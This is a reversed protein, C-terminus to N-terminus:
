TRPGATARHRLTAGDADPTPTISRDHPSVSDSGNRNAQHSTAASTTSSAHSSSPQAADGQRSDKETEHLGSTSMDSKARHSQIQVQSSRKGQLSYAAIGAFVMCAGMWHQSTFANQFYIISLLMSLLKRTTLALTTTLTSTHATLMSVGKFCISQTILNALLCVFLSFSVTTGILPLTLAVRMPPDFWLRIHHIIDSAFPLFCPLSFAHTYFMMERWERGHTRYTKEQEHGLMALLFLGAALMAVGFLWRVDIFSATATTLISTLLPGIGLWLPLVNSIVSILSSSDPSTTQDSSQSSPEVPTIVNNTTSNNINFSPTAGCCEKLSRANADAFTLVVIGVCIVLCSLVQRIPYSKGYALYGVTITAAMGASRFVTHVPVSINFGLAANNLISAFVFLLTLHLYRQIPIRRPRLQLSSWDFQQIFGETALYLFQACTVLNGAGKDRSTILELSIVNASCGLLILLWAILAPSIDLRPSPGSTMWATRSM